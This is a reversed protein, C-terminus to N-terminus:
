ASTYGEQQRRRGDVPNHIWKNWGNRNLDPNFSWAWKTGKADFCVLGKVDDLTSHAADIAEKTVIAEHLTADTLHARILTAGTLNLRTLDAKTLDAENIIAGSLNAGSLDAKTLHAAYLNAYSLNADRLIAGRLQCRTFDIYSLDLGSLNCGSFFTVGSQRMQWLEKRTYEPRSARHNTAAATPDSAELAEQVPGDLMYYRVEDMLAEADEADSPMRLKGARLFNLISNFHAGDRDIFYYGEADLRVEHIGSFAASFFSDSHKTLTSVTTEFKVGGVNLKVRERIADVNHEVRGKLLLIQERTKEQEQMFAQRKAEIDRDATKVAQECKAEAEAVKQEAEGIKQTWAAEQERVRNERVELEAMAARMQDM